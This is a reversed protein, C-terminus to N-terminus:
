VGATDGGKAPPLFIESVEGFKREGGWMEDLVTFFTRSPKSKEVYFIKRLDVQKSLNKEILTKNQVAINISLQVPLSHLNM